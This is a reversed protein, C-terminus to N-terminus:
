NYHGNLLNRILFLRVTREPNMVDSSPQKFIMIDNKSKLVLGVDSGYYELVLAFFSKQATETSNLHVRDTWAQGM